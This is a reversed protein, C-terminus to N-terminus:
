SHFRVFLIPLAKHNDFGYKAAACSFPSPSRPRGQGEKSISFLAKIKLFVRITIMQQNFKKNLAANKLTELLFFRLIKGAPSKRKM